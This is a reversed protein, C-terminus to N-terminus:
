PKNQPAGPKGFKYEYASVVEYSQRTGREFESVTPLTVSGLIARIMEADRHERRISNTVRRVMIERLKESPNHGITDLLSAFRLGTAKSGVSPVDYEVRGDPYHIEFALKYSDPINPAFFGYGVEVGALHLYTNLGERIPNSMALGHALAASSAAEANQWFSQFSLPFVTRTQTLILLTERCSVAVILL